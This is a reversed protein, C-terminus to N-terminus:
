EPAEPEEIEFEVKYAAEYELEFIPPTWTVGALLDHVPCSLAGALRVYSDFKGTVHGNEIKGIRDASVMALKSLEEQSHGARKRLLFVNDAIRARAEYSLERSAIPRNM